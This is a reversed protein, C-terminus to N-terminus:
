HTYSVYLKCRLRALSTNAVPCPQDMQAALVTRPRRTAYLGSQNEACYLFELCVLHSPMSPTYFFFLNLIFIYIVGYESWLNAVLFSREYSCSVASSHFYIVGVEDKEFLAIFSKQVSESFIEVKEFEPFSHRPDSAESGSRYRNRWM